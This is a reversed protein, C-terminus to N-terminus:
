ALHSLRDADEIGPITCQGLVQHIEAPIGHALLSRATTNIVRALRQGPDQGLHAVGRIAAQLHSVVAVTNVGHKQFSERMDISVDLAHGIPWMKADFVEM